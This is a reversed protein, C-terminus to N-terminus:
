FELFVTEKEGQLRVDFRYGEGDPEAILTARRAPDLADLLPDPGDQLYVRTAVSRLLGRAFVLLALYPGPPRATRFRYVGDQTTPCRGFGSVGPGGRGLAGRTGTSGLWLELLADPVPEGAGDLVRGTITIAGPHGEPVLDPGGGYPLAYGFFPGVTQSPTVAVATPPAGEAPLLVTM